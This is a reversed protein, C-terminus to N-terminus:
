FISPETDNHSPVSYKKPDVVQLASNSTENISAMPKPPIKPPIVNLVEGLAVSPKLPSHTSLTFGPPEKVSINSKPLNESLFTTNPFERISATPKSSGMTPRESNSWKKFPLTPEEPHMDRFPTPLIDVGPHITKPRQDSTFIKEPVPPSSTVEELDCGAIYKKLDQGKCHIRWAAWAAFGKSKEVVKKACQIDDTINVDRLAECSVNCYNRAHPTKFDDCWWKASLLFIGHNTARPGVNLASTDFGSSHFVLCIWEAITTGSFGELGNEKLIASFSCIDFVIANSRAMPFNKLIKGPSTSVQENNTEPLEQQEVVGGENVHTHLPILHQSNRRVVGKPVDVLYSRPSTHNQLVTGSEKTDTVWVHEGPVLDSLPKARHRRNYYETNMKRKEREKHAFHDVDPLAPDLQSPLTPVTTRLRRGM